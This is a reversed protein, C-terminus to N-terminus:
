IGNLHCISFRTSESNIPSTLVGLVLLSTHVAPPKPLLHYILVAYIPQLILSKEAM